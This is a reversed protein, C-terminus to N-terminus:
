RGSRERGDGTAPPLGAARRAHALQGVHYSEHMFAGLLLRRRWIPQGPPPEALADDTTARMAAVFANHRGELLRVLADRDPLGDADGNGGAAAAEWPFAPEAEDTVIRVLNRRNAVIHALIWLPSSATGPRARLAADDFGDLQQALLDRSMGFLDCVEERITVDRGDM